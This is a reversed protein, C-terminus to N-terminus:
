VVKRRSTRLPRPAKPPVTTQRDVVDMLLKLASERDFGRQELERVFERVSEQVHEHMAPVRGETMVTLLDHAGHVAAAPTRFASAEAVAGAFFESPATIEAVRWEGGPEAPEVILVAGREDHRHGPAQRGLPERNPRV